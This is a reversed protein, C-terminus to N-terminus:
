IVTLIGMRMPASHKRTSKGLINYGVPLPCNLFFNNFGINNWKIALKPITTYLVCVPNWIDFHLVARKFFFTESEAVHILAPQCNNKIQQTLTQVEKGKWILLNMDTFLSFYKKATSVLYTKFFSIIRM